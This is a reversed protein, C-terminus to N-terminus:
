NIISNQSKIIKSYIKYAEEARSQLERDEINDRWSTIINDIINDNKTYFKALERQDEGKVGITSGIYPKFRSGTTIFKFNTLYEECQKKIEDVWCLEFTRALGKYGIYEEGGIEVQEILGSSLFPSIDIMEIMPKIVIGIHKIGLEKLKNIYVLRKWATVNDEVAINIMVNDWGGLWLEPLCIMIREPRRTTIKFLCDKREHIIDWAEKRMFDVSNIFFDSGTCVNIISGSEINYELEYKESKKDKRHKRIPLKFDRKNRVTRYENYKCFICGSSVTKCGRWPNWTVETM